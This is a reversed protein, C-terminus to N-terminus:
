KVGARSLPPEERKEVLKFSYSILEIWDYRECYLDFPMWTVIQFFYEKSEYVAIRYFLDYPAGWYRSNVYYDGIRTKIGEATKFSQEAILQISDARSFVTNEVFNYYGRLKLRKRKIEGLNSKADEIGIVYFDTSTDYHQLSAYDHMDFGPRLNNPLEVTYLQDVNVTISEVIRAEKCACFWFSILLAIYIHQKM